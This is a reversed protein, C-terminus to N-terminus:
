NSNPSLNINQESPIVWHPKPLSFNFSPNRRLPNISITLDFSSSSGSIDLESKDEYMM